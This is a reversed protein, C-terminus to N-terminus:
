RSGHSIRSGIRLPDEPLATPAQGRRLADFLPEAGGDCAAVHHTGADASTMGFVVIVVDLVSEGAGQPAVRQKADGLRM